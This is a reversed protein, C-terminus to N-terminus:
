EIWIVGKNINEPEENNYITNGSGIASAISNIVIEGASNTTVTTDGSGKILVENYKSNNDALKLKVSGNTANNESVCFTYTTNNDTTKFGSDNILQSTKTPITPKDNLDLYSGSLAVASLNSTDTYEGLPQAYNKMESETVYIDPISSLYGSDNTLESVNSPITPKNSLDNYNGSFAVLKLDSFWKMMKGLIISLKEGSAINERTSAQTFTPTQDNTSVNPVNGLGIDSKTTGHPNTGSGPHTYVKTEVGNIKINGNTSSSETKTADTRAHTSQSHDYAMKGRDGRYATSSTEGLAITESIVVYNNGSWRYTKNTNLDVYIKGSEGIIETEHSSENYFVGNNLYGEIVDDVSSPLVTSPIKGNELSIYDSDNLLDSTRSPIFPTNYLDFYSNSYAAFGLEYREVYNGSPQAYNKMESDTVYSLNNTLESVRTPIDAVNAKSLLKDDIESETYYRSDHSHNANSSVTDAITKLASDIKNMNNNIVNIDALENKTPKILNYYTTSNAM